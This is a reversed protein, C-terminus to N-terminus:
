EPQAKTMQSLTAEWMKTMNRNHAIQSEVFKTMMESMDQTHTHICVHMHLYVCTECRLM